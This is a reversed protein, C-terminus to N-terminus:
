MITIFTFILINTFFVIIRYSFFYYMTEFWSNIFNFIFVLYFIHLYIPNKKQKDKFSLLRMYMKFLLNLM